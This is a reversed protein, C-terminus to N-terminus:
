GAPRVAEDESDVRPFLAEGKTTKTGPAILGWTWTHALRQSDLTEEIGLQDWLRAAASPM